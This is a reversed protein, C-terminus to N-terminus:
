RVLLNNDFNDYGAVIGNNLDVNSNGYHLVERCTSDYRQIRSPTGQIQFVEARTSGLSWADSPSTDQLFPINASVNLNNDFDNYGTVFGNTLEVQSDQYNLIERDISNYTNVSTPTGQVRFVNERPSGLTWVNEADLQEFVISPDVSVSLNSDSNNYETVMGHKLEVTSDGYYLVEECDSTLRKIRTPTGQIALVMGRSSGLSWVELPTSSRSPRTKINSQAYQLNRQYEGVKEQATQHDPSNSPVQKMLNIADQWLTAVANWEERFHATQTLEAASMAQNVAQQFASKDDSSESSESNEFPNTIPFQISIAVGLVILSTLIVGPLLYNKKKPVLHGNKLTVPTLYHSTKGNREPKPRHNM